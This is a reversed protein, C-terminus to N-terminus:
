QTRQGQLSEPPTPRMRRSMLSRSLFSVGIMLLWSPIKGFWFAVYGLIVNLGIKVLWGDMPHFAGEYASAKEYAKESYVKYIEESTVATTNVHVIHLPTSPKPQGPQAIPIQFHWLSPPNAAWMSCLVGEKECDLYGLSPASPDGAFLPVAANWAEEAKGCQGLCSHNGGTIFVLWEQSTKSSETSIPALLSSWNDLTVPIVSITARTSTEPVGYNDSSPPGVPLLSKAKNIWRQVQDKLPAQGQAAALAPLLLAASSLRM